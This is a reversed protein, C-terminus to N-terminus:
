VNQWHFYMGQGGYGDITTGRVETKQSVALSKCFDIFQNFEAFQVPYQPASSWNSKMESAISYYYTKMKCLKFNINLVQQKM